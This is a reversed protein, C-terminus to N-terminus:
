YPLGQHYRLLQLCLYPFGVLIIAAGTSEFSGFIANHAENNSMKTTGIAVLTMVLFAFIALVLLNKIFPYRIEDGVESSHSKHEKM